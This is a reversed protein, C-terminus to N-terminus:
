EEKGNAKWCSRCVCFLRWHNVLIIASSQLESRSFSVFEETVTASTPCFHLFAVVLYRLNLSRYNSRLCYPAIFFVRQRNKLPIFNAIFDFRPSEVRRRLILSRDAIAVRPSFAAALAGACHGLSVRRTMM